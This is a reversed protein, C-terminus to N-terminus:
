AKNYRESTYKEYVNNQSILIINSGWDPLPFPIDERNTYRLLVFLFSGSNVGGPAKTKCQIDIELEPSM